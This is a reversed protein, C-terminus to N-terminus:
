RDFQISQNRFFGWFDGGILLLKAQLRQKLSVGKIDDFRHIESSRM